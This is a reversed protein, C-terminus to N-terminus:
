DFFETEDIEDSYIVPVETVEGTKEDVYFGSPISNIGEPYKELYKKSEREMLMDYYVQEMMSTIHISYHDINTTINKFAYKNTVKFGIERVTTEVEDMIEYWGQPTGYYTLQYTSRVIFVEEDAYNVDMGAIQHFEILPYLANPSRNPQILPFGEPTKALHQTIKDNNYLAYTILRDMNMM